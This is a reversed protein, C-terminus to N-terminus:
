AVNGAECKARDPETNWPLGPYAVIPTVSRSVQHYDKEMLEKHELRYFEARAFWFSYNSAHEGPDEADLIIRGGQYNALPQAYREACEKASELAHERKYRQVSESVPARDMRDWYLEQMIEGRDRPKHNWELRDNVRILDAFYSHCTENVFSSAALVYKFHSDWTLISQVEM